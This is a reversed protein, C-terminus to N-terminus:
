QLFFDRQHLCFSARSQSDQSVGGRMMMKGFEKLDSSESVHSREEGESGIGLGQLLSNVKSPTFCPFRLHSHGGTAHMRM